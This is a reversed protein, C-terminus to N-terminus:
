IQSKRMECGLGALGVIETCALHIKVRFMVEIEVCDISIFPLIQERRGL